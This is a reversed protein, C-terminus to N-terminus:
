LGGVCRGHLFPIRTTADKILFHFPHFEFFVHNDCTFRHVSLSHSVHQISMGPGGATQIQDKGHYKECVALCKLDSAIHDTAGTNSYWNADISYSPAVALAASPKEDMQNGDDYQYWCQPALHNQRGCIQCRPHDSTINRDRTNNNRGGSRGGTHGGFHGSSRGGSRGTHHGGRSAYNAGMTHGHCPPPPCQPECLRAEFSLLNTYVESLSMPEARTTVFTVLSDYEGLLRTLIYAVIEDERLPAGAAALNDALNKVRNFYDTASLENKKMPALQMRLQM